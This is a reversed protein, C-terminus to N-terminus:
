ARMVSPKTITVGPFGYQALFEAFKGRYLGAGKVLQPLRMGGNVNVELLVPGRDSLAIDWAQMPIGPFARAAGRAIDLARQWDPLTTGAITAGTDPHSAVEHFDLGFGTLGTGLRGTAPDIDAILNGREGYNDAMNGGVPIKLLSAVEEPSGDQLMLVLRISCLRPGALEHMRPHTLIQEQVILGQRSVERHQASVRCLQGALVRVAVRAGSALRVEDADREYGSLVFVNRGWMGWIPKCVMPYHEAERLLSCLDFETRCARMGEVQRFPHMFAIARPVPCGMAELLTGTVIKDNALASWLQAGLVYVFDDELRRGLFRRKDDWSFRRDDFLCYQYYEDPELQGYSRLLRLMEVIQRAVPKGGARRARAGQRRAESVVARVDQLLVRTRWLSLM